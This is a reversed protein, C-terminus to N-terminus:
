IEPLFSLNIVVLLASIMVFFNIGLFIYSVMKDKAYVRDALFTNIFYSVITYLPVRFLDHWRGLETVGLFSNYRIPLQYDSPGFRFIAVLWIVCILLAGLFLMARVISDRLFAESFWSLIKSKVKKTYVRFLIQIKM